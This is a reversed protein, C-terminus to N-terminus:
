LRPSCLIGIGITSSKIISALSRVTSVTKLGKYEGAKTRMLDLLMRLKRFLQESNVDDKYFTLVKENVPLDVHTTWNAASLLLKQTHRPIKLVGQDFRKDLEGIIVDIVEFYEKRFVDAPQTIRRIRREEM